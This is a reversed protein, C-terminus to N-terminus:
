GGGGVFPIEWFFWCFLLFSSSRIRKFHLNIQTPCFYSINRDSGEWEDLLTYTTGCFSFGFHVRLTPISNAFLYAGWRSLNQMPCWSFLMWLSKFCSLTCFLSFALVGTSSRIGGVGHALRCYENTPHQLNDYSLYEHIGSSKFPSRPCGAVSSLWLCLKHYTLHRQTLSYRDNPQLQRVTWLSGAFLVFERDPDPYLEM